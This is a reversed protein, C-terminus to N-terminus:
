KIGQETRHHPAREWNGTKVNMEWAPENPSGSHLLIKGDAMQHTHYNGVMGNLIQAQQGPIEKFITIKGLVWMGTVTAGFCLMIFIITGLFKKTSGTFLKSPWNREDNIACNINCDNLRKELKELKESLGNSVTKKIDSINASMMGIARQTEAHAHNLSLLLECPDHEPM